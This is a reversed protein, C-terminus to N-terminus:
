ALADFSNLFKTSFYLRGNKGVGIPLPTMGSSEGRLTEDALDNASFYASTTRKSPALNFQINCKPSTGLNLSFTLNTWTSLWESSIPSFEGNERSYPMTPSRAMTVSSNSKFAIAELADLKPLITTAISPSEAKPNEPKSISVATLDFNGIMTM